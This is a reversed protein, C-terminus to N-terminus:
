DSDKRDLYNKYLRMTRLSPRRSLEEAVAKMEPTELTEKISRALEEKTQFMRYLITM